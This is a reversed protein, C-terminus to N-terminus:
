FCVFRAVAFISERFVRAFIAFKILLEHLNFESEGYNRPEM